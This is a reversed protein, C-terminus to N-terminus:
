VEGDLQNLVLGTPLKPYFYTSKQPMKDAADAVAKVAYADVPNLLFGLRYEGASVRQWAELESRSYAINEGEDLGLLESLIVHHLVSVDLTRYAQSRDHPLAGEVRAFDHLRLILLSERELGLLGIVVREGKLPKLIRHLMAASLPCSMPAADVEFCTGLRARLEQVRAESVDRVLRHYPLVVLGSDSFEVLTMMVFNFAANSGALPLADLREKRYALATEYRHHGDAVYLPQPGLASTVRDLLQRDTISWLTHSEDDAVVRFLPERRETAKIVSAVNGDADQYLTLTPSINAQCARVLNLRDAKFVAATGEHPRVVGKDWDELRVAAMLGRRTRVEGQYSFYHHHLYMAPSADAHLVGRELWEKFTEAARSYRNNWFSDGPEALGYELRVVNYRSKHYLAHQMEPTIVDYPPCTVTGPDGVLEQNYRLGRFPRVDAM